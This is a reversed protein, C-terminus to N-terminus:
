KIPTTSSLKNSLKPNKIKRAKTRDKILRTFLKVLCALLSSETKFLASSASCLRAMGMCFDGLVWHFTGRREKQFLTKGPFFPIIFWPSARLSKNQRKCPGVYRARVQDVEKSLLFFVCDMSVACNAIRAPKDAIQIAM